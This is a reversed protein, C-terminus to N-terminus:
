RDDNQGGGANNEQTARLLQEAPTEQGRGAARLLESQAKTSPRDSGRVLTEVEPLHKVTEKTILEVPEIQTADKFLTTAYWIMLVSCVAFFGGGLLILVPNTRATSSLGALIITMAVAMFAAGVCGFAVAFSYLGGKEILTGLYKQIGVLRKRPQEPNM